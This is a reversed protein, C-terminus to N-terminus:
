RDNKQDKESSPNSCSTKKAGFENEPIQTLRTIELRVKLLWDHGFIRIHASGYNTDKNVHIWPYKALLSLYDMLLEYHTSTNINM